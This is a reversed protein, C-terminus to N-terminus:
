AFGIRRLLEEFRPDGRLGDLAPDAKLFVVYYSRQQYLKELWEFARDRDGLATYLAAVAYPSPEEKAEDIVGALVKLAQDKKGAEAYVRAIWTKMTKDGSLEIFKEFERIAGDYDHKGEYALALHFRAEAFNQDMDITKLLQDIAEDFRRASNLARGVATNIILSLPDLERARKAESIAENFRGRSILYASYWHHATAYNSNLGIAEEYQREAEAWSWEYEYAAALSTHAEALSDDIELARTAAAKAKPYLDKSPAASYEYLLAYCDALGAYALAYSPDKEIAENFYAVGRRLGDETRKNAYFRGKLYLQYAEANDTYRRSVRKEDEGSLRHQLKESVQRAIEEQLTSLDSMRRNYQEGWVQTDDQTNILDISITISEGRQAIRGVLVGQVGLERGVARPNAEQGKYKFVSNRSMVKLTHSQSLNNILSETLGESLYDTSPDGSLNTFPLVAISDISRARPLFAFYAVTAASLVIVAAVILLFARKHNKIEGVIYEASSTVQITPVHDSRVPLEPATTGAQPNTQSKADPVHDPRLSDDLGAELELRRRLKKLDDLLDDTTQYRADRDKALARDVIAQIRPPIDPLLDSISPPQRELISVIVDSVSAGKFPMKGTLMEYLLAGLSFIDTRADVALGRAQEPSMYNPSGMVINAETTVLGLTPVDRDDSEASQPGSINEVFKETLKVVGFDLVKAFGDPRLMVNEPKIDRHVIGARHAAALARAVQIAVDIAERVSFGTEKLRQRVTEGEIFETAIFRFGEESGVEHITIINPHNLASASRAEQEFRRLRDEDTNFQEPLVKLAVRRGLSMDEALYVDGMGGAGIRSLIRYHSIITNSPLLM